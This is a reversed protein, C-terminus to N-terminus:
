RSAPASGPDTATTIEWSPPTRKTHWFPPRTVYQSCSHVSGRRLHTAHELSRPLRGRMRGRCPVHRCGSGRLSLLGSHLSVFNPTAKGSRAVSRGVM